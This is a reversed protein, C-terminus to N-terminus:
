FSNSIFKKKLLYDISWCLEHVFFSNIWCAHVLQSVWGNCTICASYLQNNINVSRIAHKKKLCISFKLCYQFSIVNIIHHSHRTKTQMNTIKLNLKSLSANKQRHIHNTYVVPSCFTSSISHHSGCISVCTSPM